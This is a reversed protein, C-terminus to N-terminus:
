SSKMVEFTSGINLVLLFKLSAVYKSEKDKPFNFSVMCEFAYWHRAVNRLKLNCATNCPNTSELTPVSCLVPWLVTPCKTATSKHNSISPFFLHCSFTSELLHQQLALSIPSNKELLNTKVFFCHYVQSLHIAHYAGHISSYKGWCM